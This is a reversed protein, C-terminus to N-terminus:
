APITVCLRDGPIEADRDLYEATQGIRVFSSQLDTASAAARRNQADHAPPEACLEIFKSRRVTKCQCNKAARDYTWSAEHKVNQM